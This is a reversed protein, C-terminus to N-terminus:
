GGEAAPCRDAGIRPGFGRRLLVTLGVYGYGLPIIILGGFAAVAAFPGPAEVAFGVVVALPVFAAAMLLPARFMLRRIETESHRGIWWIAWVALPAYPLGGYLLSYALVEWLAGDSLRLELTRAVGIVAAPVVIPLWVCLQYFTRAAALSSSTTEITM